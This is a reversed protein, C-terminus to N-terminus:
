ETSNRRWATSNYWDVGFAMILSMAAVVHAGAQDFQGDVLRNDDSAAQIPRDEPGGV